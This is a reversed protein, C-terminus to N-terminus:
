DTASPTARPPMFGIPEGPVGDGYARLAAVIVATVTVGELDARARAVALDLAPLRYAASQRTAPDPLEDPM